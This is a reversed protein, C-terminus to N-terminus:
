GPGGSSSTDSSWAVNWPDSDDRPRKTGREAPADSERASEPHKLNMVNHWAHEFGKTLSYREDWTNCEKLKPICADGLFRTFPIEWYNSRGLHPRKWQMSNRYDEKSLKVYEDRWLEGCRWTM